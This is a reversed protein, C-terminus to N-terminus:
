LDGSNIKLCNLTLGIGAAKLVFVIAAVEPHMDAKLFMGVSNVPIILLCRPSEKESEASLRQSNIAAM